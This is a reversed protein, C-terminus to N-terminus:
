HMYVLLVTLFINLIMEHGLRFISARKLVCRTIRKLVIERVMFSLVELNKCSPEYQIRFKKNEENFSMQNSVVQIESCDPYYRSVVQEFLDKIMPIEDTRNEGSFYKYMAILHSSRKTYKRYWEQYTM